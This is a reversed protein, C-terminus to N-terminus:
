ILIVKNPHTKEILSETKIIYLYKLLFCTWNVKYNCIVM